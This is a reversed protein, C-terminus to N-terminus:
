CPSSTTCTEPRRRSRRSRRRVRRTAASRTPPLLGAGVLGVGWLGVLVAGIERRGGPERLLAITFLLTLVGCVLFNVAQTWGLAGLSLSSVPHRLPDYDAAGEILFAIVFLPGAAVGCRLLLKM